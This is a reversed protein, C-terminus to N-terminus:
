DKAAARFRNISRDVSPGPTQLLQRVGGYRNTNEHQVQNEVKQATAMGSARVGPFGYGSARSWQVGNHIANKREQHM